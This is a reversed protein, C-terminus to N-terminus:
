SFSNERSSKRMLEKLNEYLELYIEYGAAYAKRKSPDPTHRRKEHAAESAAESVDTILGAGAGALLAAGLATSDDSARVSVPIGTVDAKMQTWFRSNASGGTALLIDPSAGAEKAVELNHLLSNCVGEMAARLFDARTKSFDIGFFVGKADPDWIPTREGSMYPLFVLGHSGPISKEAEEDFLAPVSLGRERSLSAEYMGFESALWKIVGGGGTTGGQLLWQGPLVHVCNILKATDTVSPTCVSMGGSTGGQEQTMGPSVVGAGLAACASDVGGAVVPTGPLLGCELSAAATIRGAIESCGLIEPLVREPIGLEDAARANWALKRMDFCHWGYGQSPDQCVDGTLRYVIYGNSQLIKKVSRGADSSTLAAAKGTVYNATLPNPNIFRSEPSRRRDLELCLEATGNDMWIPTDGVPEGSSDIGVCAWSQGDVGVAAVDEPKLGSDSLCKRIGLCAARYWDRPDQRALGPAPRLTPYGFSATALTNGSIDFLATKCASTGIDIGCLATM